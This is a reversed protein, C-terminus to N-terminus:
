RLRILLLVALPTSVYVTFGMAMLARAADDHLYAETLLYLPPTFIAIVLALKLLVLGVRHRWHFEPNWERPIMGRLMRPFM